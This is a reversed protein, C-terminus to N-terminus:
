AKALNPSNLGQLPEIPGAEAPDKIQNSYLPRYSVPSLETISRFPPSVISFLVILFPEQVTTILLWFDLNPLTFPVTATKELPWFGTKLIMLYFGHPRTVGGGTRLM